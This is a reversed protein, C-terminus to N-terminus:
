DLNVAVIIENKRGVLQFPPNYGLVRFNGDHSIGAKELASQLKQKYKGIKYDSAYGGFTLTAVTEAPSESISVESNSPKPLTGADYKSPMVFSMSSVSDNIDMHVPSTMAIQTKSDNGGFIFGALKRFGPSSLEKYSNVKSRITAMTAAPYFRLEFDEETRILKYNQRETRNTSVVSYVQSVVVLGLVVGSIIYFTKM